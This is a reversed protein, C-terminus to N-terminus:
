AASQNSIDQLMVSIMAAILSLGILIAWIIFLM